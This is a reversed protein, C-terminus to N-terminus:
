GHVVNSADDVVDGPAKELKDVLHAVARVVGLGGQKVALDFLQMIAAYEGDTLEIHRM